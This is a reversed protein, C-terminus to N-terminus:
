FHYRASLTPALLLVVPAILEDSPYTGYGEDPLVVPRDAEDAWRATGLGILLFAQLGLSAEFRDSLRVGARAEPAVYVHNVRHSSVMEAAEFTMGSATAITATRADGVSSFLAGAGLRLLVPFREGLHASANAGLLFGALRLTDDASAARAPLGVPRVTTPREEIRQEAFLYGASIGFGFGTGLEYGGHAMALVGLGPTRSCSGTCEGGAVDGGFTPALGLGATADVFFRSPKRWLPSSPDRDLVIRVVERADPDIRVTRVAPRFGAAAAEIRHSGARLRGEWLGSGVEVADIAIAAGAPTAEVLVSAELPEAELALSTTHGKRVRARSPQTGTGDDGRLYLVHDGASVLGEWPTRGVVVGDLVVELSLGRREGVRLRGSEVLARLKATVRATQRGAVDVRTEFPEFGEKYVRVAHSGAAVRLPAVAPYDARYRGDIVIAAGIEAGDIEITGLLNRLDAVEHQAVKKDAAPLDPFERLLAEYLDLAEDFRGLKRLCYAANKTANRTPYISRSRLFEAAAAAWLSQDALTTGREFAARARERRAAPDETEADPETAVEGAAGSPAAKPAPAPCPCLAPPEAAAARSALGSLLVLM